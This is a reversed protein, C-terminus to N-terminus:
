PTPRATGPRRCCSAIASNAFCRDSASCHSDDDCPVCRPAVATLAPPQAVPAAAPGEYVLRTPAEGGCSSTALALVVLSPLFIRLTVPAGTLTAFTERIAALLEDEDM